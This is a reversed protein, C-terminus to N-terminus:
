FEIGKVAGIGQQYAHKVLKMETVTDAAEVVEAPAGRGTLIVHLRRPKGSTLWGAVEAPDIFGLRMAVNIEDLVLLDYGDGAVKERAFAWTAQARQGHEEETKHSRRIRVFGYGGKYWELGPLWRPAQQEGTRWNGKIFQVVLVRMGQGVARLATGFAATSKGKGDGTNVLVLGRDLGKAIGLIRKGAVDVPHGGEGSPIGPALTPAATRDPVEALFSSVMGHVLARAAEEEGRALLDLAPGRVISAFLASREAGSRGPHRQVQERVEGLLEALQGYEPGVTRELERRLRRALAPSAGDTSIAVHVPGRRVEATFTVNGMEPEGSVSFLREDAEAQRAVAADVERRGTAAVVLIAGSADGPAYPRQLVEIRGREWLTCLGLTLEPSVVRVRAGAQLLARAKREAVPGGGVVVALRGTLRLNITMM